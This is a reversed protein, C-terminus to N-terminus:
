GSPLKSKKELLKTANNLLEQAEKMKIKREEYEAMNKMNLIRGFRNAIEKLEEPKIERIFNLMEKATTHKEGSHRYGLYFVCIADIASIGCHVSNIACLDYKKEEFASRAGYLCEEARQLYNIYYSQDVKSKKIM